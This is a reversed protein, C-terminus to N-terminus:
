VPFPQKNLGRFTKGTTKAYSYFHKRLHRSNIRLPFFYLYFIQLTAFHIFFSKIFQYQRHSRLRYKRRQFSDPCFSNKRQSVDPIGITNMGIYFLLLYPLGIHHPSSKYTQLHRFIQSGPSYLHCNDLHCVLHHSRDIIFYSNHYM